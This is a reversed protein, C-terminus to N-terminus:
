EGTPNAVTGPPCTSNGLLTCSRGASDTVGFGAFTPLPSLSALNQFDSANVITSRITADPLNSNATLMSAKTSPGYFSSVAYLDTFVYTLDLCHLVSPTTCQLDMINTVPNNNNNKNTIVSSFTYSTNQTFSGSVTPPNTSTDETVTFEIELCQISPAGNIPKLCNDNGQGNNGNIVQPNSGTPPNFLTPPPNGTGSGNCFAPSGFQFGQPLGVVLTAIAEGASRGGSKLFEPYQINFTVVQAGAPCPPNTVAATTATTTATATAVAAGKGGGTTTNATVFSPVNAVPIMFSSALAMGQQTSTSTGLLLQDAQPAPPTETKSTGCLITDLDFFEGGKYTSSNPLCASSTPVTRFLSTVGGSSIAGADMLNCGNDSGAYVYKKGGTCATGAGLTTHDLNLGHGIEHALTDFVPATSAFTGSAIAIGNGNIWSLGNDQAVTPSNSLDSISNVFFMNFVRTDTYLPVTPTVLCTPCRQVTTTPAGVCLTYNSLAALDPSVFHVTGDSCTVKVIHLSRYDTTFNTWPSGWQSPLNNCNTTTTGTSTTCLPSDFEQMPLFVVDIGTQLWIARTINTNNTIQNNTSPDTWTSQDVFGIPTTAISQATSAAAAPNNFASGCNASGNSNTTCNMGFPACTKTTTGNSTTALCVDIPNVVVYNTVQALAAGSVLCAVAVSLLFCWVKRGQSCKLDGM